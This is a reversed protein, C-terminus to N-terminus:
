FFYEMGLMFNFGPMPYNDVIEYQQDLLNNLCLKLTLDNRAVTLNKSLAADLTTWPSLRYAPLNASTTFREGTMFATIDLRWGGHEGYLNVSGSHLPIYPIQGNWTLAEKDSKDRSRQFTYRGVLGFEVTGSKKTYEATLDAGLVEVRGLNYMSWRFQNSTPVAIIKNKLQNWYTEVKLTLYSTPDSWLSWVAGLDLQIADEPDLTKTGVTTYYLDNFTPMRFSRKAFGNLALREAPKWRFVLSPMFASRSASSRGNGSLFSDRVGLYLASASAEFSDKGFIVSACSWSSFRGPYAFARLDSDLYDYQCDQALNVKLLGGIRAMATASLYASHNRYNYSAPTGDPVLEPYDTYELHSFSLKARGAVSWVDGLDRYYKGQLFADRDTQRDESLPYEGAKKYVPGPLGRGSGYFYAHINWSSVGEARSSLRVEVRASTIDSNLRTMTTDYGALSGDPYQRFDKVHFRYRGDSSVGGASVRLKTGNRLLHEWVASPSITMFSGAGTGFDFNDRKGDKFVPDASELYLSSASSYEKASQLPAVKQGSFLSVSSLGQLSFRGLDVQMNQANDVQIGDIFVGTHESGLSRVNVTKLGGVGGYDRLQVGAFRRVAESLGSASKLEGSTIRQPVIISGYISSVMAAKLTDSGESHEPHCEPVQIFLLLAALFSPLM